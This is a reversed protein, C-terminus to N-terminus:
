YRGHVLFNQSTLLRPSTGIEPYFWIEVTAVYPQGLRGPSVSFPRLFAFSENPDQSWRLPNPEMGCFELLGDRCDLLMRGTTLEYARVCMRGSEGPNLAGYCIQHEDLDLMVYPLCNTQHCNAFPEIDTCKKPEVFLVSRPVELGDAFFEPGNALIRLVVVSCLYLVFADVVVALLCRGIVLLPAGSFTVGDEKGMFLSYLLWFVTCFTMLGGAFKSMRLADLNGGSLAYVFVFSLLIESVLRVGYHPRAIGAWVRICFNKM